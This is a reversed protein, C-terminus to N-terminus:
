GYLPEGRSPDSHRVVIPDDIKYLYKDPSGTIHVFTGEEEKLDSAYYEVVITDFLEIEKDADPYKVYVRGLENCSGVFGDETVSAIYLYSKKAENVEESKELVRCMVRQLTYEEDFYFKTERWLVTGSDTTVDPSRYVLTYAYEGNSDNRALYIYGGNPSAQVLTMIDPDDSNPDEEFCDVLYICFRHLISEMSSGFECSGPLEFVGAIEASTIMIIEDAVSRDSYVWKWYNISVLDNNMGYYEDLNEAMGNDFNASLGDLLPDESSTMNQIIADYTAKVDSTATIGVSDLWGDFTEYVYSAHSNEWESEGSRKVSLYAENLSLEGKENENFMLKASREVLVDAGNDAIVSMNDTYELCTVGEYNVFYTFAYGDGQDLCIEEGGDATDIDALGFGLSELVNAFGDGFDAELPLTLDDVEISFTISSTSYYLNDELSYDYDNQATMKEGYTVYGGGYFGDYHMLQPQENLKVGDIAANEVLAEVDVSGNGVFFGLSDLYEAFHTRVVYKTASGGNGNHEGYDIVWGLETLADIAKKPVDDINGDEIKKCKKVYCQAPYSEAVESKRTIEIKDGSEIGDFLDENDSINNMVLFDGNEYVILYTGGAVLARGTDKELGRTKEIKESIDCGSAMLAFLALLLALTLVFIRKKM